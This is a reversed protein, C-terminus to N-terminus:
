LTTRIKIVALDDGPSYFFSADVSQPHKNPTLIFIITINTEKKKEEITVSVDCHRCHQWCSPIDLYAEGFRKVIVSLLSVWLGKNIALHSIIAFFSLSTQFHYKNSLAHPLLFSIPIKFTNSIIFIWVISRTLFTTYFFFFFLHSSLNWVNFVHQFNLDTWKLDISTLITVAKYIDTNYCSGLCITLCTQLTQERQKRDESGTGSMVGPLAAFHRRPSQASPSPIHECHEVCPTPTFWGCKWHVASKICKKLECGGNRGDDATPCIECVILCTSLATQSRKM